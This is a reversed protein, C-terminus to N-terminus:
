PCCTAPAGGRDGKLLRARRWRCYRTFWLLIMAVGPMVGGIFGWLPRKSDGNWQRFTALATNRTPKRSDYIVVIRSGKILDPRAQQEFKATGTHPEGDALFRYTVTVRFKITDSRLPKFSKSSVEEITAAAQLGHQDLAKYSHDYLVAVVCMGVLFAVFLALFSGVFVTYRPSRHAQQDFLQQSFLGGLFHDKYIDRLRARLSM